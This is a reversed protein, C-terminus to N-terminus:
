VKRRTEASLKRSALCYAACWFVPCWISWASLCAIGYRLSGLELAIQGVLVPSLLDGLLHSGFTMMGMAFGRLDGPVSDMMAIMLPATGMFSIMQTAGLCLLFFPGDKIAITGCTCPVVFIALVFCIWCGVVGRVDEELSWRQKACITLADFLAGGVTSGLVGTCATMIGLSMGAVHKDMGLDEQLYTASWFAFGGIVFQSAAFGLVLCDYVGSSLLLRLRQLWATGGRLAGTLQDSSDPKKCEDVASQATLKPSPPTKLEIDSTEAGVITIFNQNPQHPQGEKARSQVPAKALATDDPSVKGDDKEDVPAYPM